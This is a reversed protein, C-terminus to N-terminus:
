LRLPFFCSRLILFNQRFAGSALLSAIWSSWVIGTMDNRLSSPNDVTKVTPTEPFRALFQIAQDRQPLSDDILCFAHKEAFRWLMPNIGQVFWINGDDLFSFM